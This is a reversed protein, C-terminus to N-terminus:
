EPMYKKRILFDASFIGPGRAIIILLAIAWLGHLIYAEPYVFSQIVATMVLLAAASFRSALGIFLLVPFVLEAFTAMYAATQPAIVPLNYEYEFLMFTADRISFGDIKTLASKWFVLAIIVRALASIFSQPTKELLKILSAVLNVFANPSVGSLKAPRTQDSM